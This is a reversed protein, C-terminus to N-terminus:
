LKEEKEREKKNSNIFAELGIVGFKLEPQRTVNEATQREDM